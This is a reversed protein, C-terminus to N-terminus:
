DEGRGMRLAPVRTRPLCQEGWSAGNRYLKIVQIKEGPSQPQQRGSGVGGRRRPFPFFLRRHCFSGREAVRPVAALGQAPGRGRSGLLVTKDRAGSLPASNLHDTQLLALGWSPEPVM